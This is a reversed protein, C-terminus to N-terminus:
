QGKWTLSSPRCRSVSCMLPWKIRVSDINLKAHVLLVAGPPAIWDTRDIPPLFLCTRSRWIASRCAPWKATEAELRTYSTIFSYHMYPSKYYNYHGASLGTDLAWGPLLLSHPFITPLCFRALRSTLNRRVDLPTNSNADQPEPPKLRPPM